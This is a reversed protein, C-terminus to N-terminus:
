AKFKLACPITRMMPLKTIRSSCVSQFLLFTVLAVIWDGTKGSLVGRGGSLAVTRNSRLQYALADREIKKYIGDRGLALDGVPEYSEKFRDFAVSPRPNTYKISRNAPNSIRSNLPLYITMQNFLMVNASHGETLRDKRMAVKTALGERKASNQSLPLVVDIQRHRQEIRAVYASASGPLDSPASPWIGPRNDICSNPIM